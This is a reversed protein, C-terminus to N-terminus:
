SRSGKRSKAKPEPEDGQEADLKAASAALDAEVDVVVETESPPQEPEAAAAVADALIDSTPASTKPKPRLEDDLTTEGDRIANALGRLTLIDEVGIDEVRRRDLYTLLEAETAGKDTFYKLASARKQEVTGKGLAAQKCADVVPEILARPVVRFVANRVAISVAAQATVAVMDDSYRRGNRGTIRRRTETQVSTNTELDHCVGEAVVHTSNIEVVRGGVRLNRYRSAVIEALRVSPGEIFVERGDQNRKLRYFASQAVKESVCAISQVEDLFKSIVRPRREAAALQTEIESKTVTALAATDLIEIENSATATSM